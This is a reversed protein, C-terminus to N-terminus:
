NTIRIKSSFKSYKTSLCGYTFFVRAIWNIAEGSNKTLHTSNQVFLPKALLRREMKYAPYLKMQAHIKHSLQLPYLNKKENKNYKEGNLPGKFCAPKSVDIATVLFCDPTVYDPTYVWTPETLSLSVLIAFAQKRTTNLKLNFRQIPILKM